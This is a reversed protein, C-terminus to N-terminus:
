GLGDIAAECAAIQAELATLLCDRESADGDHGMAELREATQAIQWAGLTRAIGKLTHTALRWSAADDAAAVANAQLRVQARFLALLDGELARDGMSYRGLHALDLVTPNPKAPAEGYVRALPDGAMRM